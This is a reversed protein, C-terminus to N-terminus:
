QIRMTKAPDTRAAKLAPFLSIFAACVLVTIAPITFSRLNVEAEMTEFKMGGYTLGEGIKLGHTSLYSNAAFGLVSGLIICIFALIIVEILVLKVIQSPKTGVAKLVGYEKQRELVSMLVTNLVGLGVIFVIIILMIWAGQKDAKMAQYFARAFVQWPEVALNPNNIKRTLLKATKVVQNLKRVTIAIEHIKGELVMLEQADKLHLYFSTRDSLDDGSDLIGVVKYLDNAISGDAAQSVIVVDDNIKAKLIQALGKGLIAEHAPKASLSRGKIIKQDFHTTKTEREPNIGMIRVGATKQGVSALGASYLRPTWSEIEKTEDLIQGINSSQDITKYLSPRDLYTKEHIQIHGLRNRTFTNIIDNYSGDSWGISIAALVFGGVMSLATLITRRRQRFINRFAMKLIFM